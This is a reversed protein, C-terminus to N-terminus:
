HTGTPVIRLRSPPSAGYSLLVEISDRYGSSEAIMLATRGKADIADVNAGANLLATLMAKNSRVNGAVVIHLTTSGQVDIANVDAGADLLIKLVSDSRMPNERRRLVTFHLPTRGSTDIAHVNAGAALLRRVASATREISEEEGVTYRDSHEAVAAFHLATRGKADAVNVNTCAELLTRLVRIGEAREHAMFAAIHLSTLAKLSDERSAFLSLTVGPDMSLLQETRGLSMALPMLDGSGHLSAIHSFSPVPGSQIVQSHVALELTNFTVAVGRPHEQHIDDFGCWPSLPAISAGHGLLFQVMAANMYITALMIPSIYAKLRGNISLQGSLNVNAGNDLLLQVCDQRGHYVAAHLPSGWRGGCCTTLDPITDFVPSLSMRSQEARDVARTGPRVAAQLMTEASAYFEGEILLMLLAASHGHLIDLGHTYRGGGFCFSGALAVYERTPFNLLSVLGIAGNICAVDTYDLLHTIAHELFPHCRILELDYKPNASVHSAGFYLDLYARCEKAMTTHIVAMHDRQQIFDLERRHGSSLFQRVSEHIFQVQALRGTTCEILGRSVHLISMHITAIDVEERNWYASSLEAMSTKIVFYLEEPQLPRKTFLVWRMAVHFAYGASESMKAFLADLQEPVINLTRRLESATAGRGYEHKLMRVVLVVWLFVGSCRKEVEAQLDARSPSQITLSNTLYTRIDQLHDPLIDLIIEEHLRMPMHPYHRSSLCLHFRVGASTASQSLSEFFEVASRVQDTECEDLADLYCTVKEHATLGLVAERLLGELVEVSWSQQETVHTSRIAIMKLSPMHDYLQFLLARYMGETSKEVSESSRANFFFSITTDEQFNKRAYDYVYRMLTSKGTGAKGKIWLVGHNEHRHACDRWSTFEHTQLIWSCTNACASGVTMLRDGMGKFALAEMLDRAKSNDSKPQDVNPYINNYVNGFHSRSHDANRIGSFIQGGMDNLGLRTSGARPNGAFEGRGHHIDDWGPPMSM